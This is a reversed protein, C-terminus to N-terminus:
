LFIKGILFIFILGIIWIHVKSGRDNPLGPPCDMGSGDCMEKAALSFM